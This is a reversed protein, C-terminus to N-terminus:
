FVFRFSLCVPRQSASPHWPSKHSVARVAVVVAVPPNIGQAFPFPLYSLCDGLFRHLAFFALEAIELPQFFEDAASQQDRRFRIGTERAM